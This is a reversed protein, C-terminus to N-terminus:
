DERRVVRRKGGEERGEREERREMRGKGGGRWGRERGKGGGRWGRERGKRGGLSWGSCGIQHTANTLRFCPVVSNVDHYFRDHLSLLSAQSSFVTHTHMCTCLPPSFVHFGETPLESVRSAQM